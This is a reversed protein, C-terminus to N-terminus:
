EQPSKLLYTIYDRTEQLNKPRYSDYVLYDFFQPYKETDITKGTMVRINKAANLLKEQVENNKIKPQLEPSADKNGPFAERDSLSQSSDSM